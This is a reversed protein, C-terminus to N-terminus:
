INLYFFFICVTFLVHNCVHIYVCLLDVFTCKCFCYSVQYLAAQLQHTRNQMMTHIMAAPADNKILLRHFGASRQPTSVEAYMKSDCSLSNNLYIDFNLLHAPLQLRHFRRLSHFYTHASVSLNFWVSVCICIRACASM